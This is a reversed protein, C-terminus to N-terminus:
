QYCFIIWRFCTISDILLTIPEGVVEYGLSFVLCDSVNLRRM